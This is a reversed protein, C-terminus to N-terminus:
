FLAHARGIIQARTVWGTLAYRSDLSDPHPARVYYTGPPLTGTPGPELPVGQRSAPKATGVPVCNVFFDGELAMVADGPVGAIRKIFTAGKPYPGGGPWRFAVLDGRGPIGTRDILFLREPLSESANLGVTYRSDFWVVFAAM